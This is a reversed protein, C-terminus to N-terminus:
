AFVGVKEAPFILSIEAVGRYSRGDKASAEDCYASISFPMNTIYFYRGNERILNEGFKPKDRSITYQGEHFKIRHCGQTKEEFAHEKPLLFLMLTVGGGVVLLIFGWFLYDIVTFEM